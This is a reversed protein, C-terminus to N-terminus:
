ATKTVVIWGRSLGSSPDTTNLAAHIESIPAWFAPYKYRSVDMVLAQDNALAAIPSFHGYGIQITQHHIRTKHYASTGVEHVGTRLFNIIVYSDDSSTAKKISSELDAVSASDAHYATIMVRPQCRLLQTAQQLTLGHHEIFDYTINAADTCDNFIDSQTFFGYPKYTSSVPAPVQLANLVMASSAVACFAQNVQTTFTQALQWYSQAQKSSHAQLLLEVGQTTNMATLESPLPLEYQALAISGILGLTLLKIILELRAM